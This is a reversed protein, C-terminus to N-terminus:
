EQPAQKRPQQQVREQFPGFTEPAPQGNNGNAAFYADNPTPYEAPWQFAPTNTPIPQPAPQGPQLNQQHPPAAFTQEAGPYYFPM